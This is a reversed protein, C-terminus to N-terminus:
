KLASLMMQHFIKKINTTESFDRNVEGLKIMEDQINVSNGSITADAAAGETPRAPSADLAAPEIHGPRTAAMAVGAADLVSAFPPLDRAKFGPTSANAVNDAILTQRTSLWQTRQSAVQFLYVESM